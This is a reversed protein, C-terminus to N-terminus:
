YEDIIVNYQDIVNTTNQITKVQLLHRSSIQPFIQYLSAVNQLTETASLVSDQRYLWFNESNHIDLAPTM